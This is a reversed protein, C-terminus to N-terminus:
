HLGKILSHTDLWPMDLIINYLTMLINCSCTPLLTNGTHEVVSKTLIIDMFGEEKLLELAKLCSTELVIDEQSMVLKGM